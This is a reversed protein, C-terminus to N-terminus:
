PHENPFHRSMELVYESYALAAHLERVDSEHQAVRSMIVDRARTKERVERDRHDCMARCGEIEAQPVGRSQVNRLATGAISASHRAMALELRRQEVEAGGDEAQVIESYVVMLSNQLGSVARVVDM